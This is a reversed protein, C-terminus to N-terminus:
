RRNLGVLHLHEMVLAVCADIPQVGTPLRIDPTLPTEYPASIGTFNPLKGARSKAYLGKPDRQECIAISADCYIEIFKHPAILRRVNERDIRKPSIFSALVVRGDTM